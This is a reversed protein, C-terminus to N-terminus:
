FNVVCQKDAIQCTAITQGDRVVDFSDVKMWFLAASGVEILGFLKGCSPPPQRKGAALDRLRLCYGPPLRDYLSPGWKRADWEGNKSRFVVGVMSLNSNGQNLVTFSVDDYMLLANGSAPQQPSGPTEGVPSLQIPPQTATPQALPLVTPPVDTPPPSAPTAPVPMPPVPTASAAVNAALVATATAPIPTATVIVPTPTVPRNVLAPIIGVVAVLVTVIGGIMAAVIQPNQFPSEPKHPATPETMFHGKVFSLRKM